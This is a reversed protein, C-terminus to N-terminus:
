SRAITALVTEAVAEPERYQPLHDVPLLVLVAGPIRAALDISAQRSDAPDLEGAIVTTPVALHAALEWQPPNEQELAAADSHDLETADLVTEELYADSGSACWYEIQIAALAPLDGAEKAAGWRAELDADEESDEPWPYGGIGPCLLTMSAVRGAQTVALALSTEGGMSNGVLHVQEIGLGDLLAILDDVARYPESARPSRGFGRRDYRIVRRTGLHPLMRDWVRSDTIGPHLLVVPIGEGADDFSLRSVHEVKHGM